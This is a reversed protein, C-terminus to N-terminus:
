LTTFYINKKIQDFDKKLFKVGRFALFNMNLFFMFITLKTYLIFLSIFSRLFLSLYNKVILNQLIKVYKPFIDRECQFIEITEGLGLLNKLDSFLSIPVKEMDAFYRLQMNQKKKM